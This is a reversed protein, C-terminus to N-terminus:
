NSISKNWNCVDNIQQLLVFTGNFYDQIQNAKVERVTALKEFSQKELPSKACSDSVVGIVLMSLFAIAFFTGM